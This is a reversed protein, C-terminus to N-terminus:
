SWYSQSGGLAPVLLPIRRLRALTAAAEASSGTGRILEELVLRFHLALTSRVTEYIKVDELDKPRTHQWWHAVYKQALKRGMAQLGSFGPRGHAVVDFLINVYGMAYSSDIAAVLLGQALKRVDNDISLAIIDVVHTPWFFQLIRRTQSEDFLLDADSFEPLRISPM